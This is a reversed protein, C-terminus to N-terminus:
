KCNWMNVPDDLFRLYLQLSEIQNSLIFIKKEITNRIANNVSGDEVHLVRIDPSYLTKYKKQETYAGLFFEENYLFTKPYFAVSENDVWKKTYIVCAGHPTINVQEKNYISNHRVKKRGNHNIGFKLLFRIFRKIVIGKIADRKTLAKCRFPNSHINNLDIIDPAITAVDKNREILSVLSGYFSSDKIFVDSNMVVITDCHLKEKAYQYGLNNGKAFGQNEKNVIVTINKIEATKAKLKEGTGDPSCNDVLVIETQDINEIKLLWDVCEAYMPFNGYGLVVFGVKM